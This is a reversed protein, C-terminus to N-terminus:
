YGTVPPDGASKKGVRCRQSKEDLIPRAHVGAHKMKDLIVKLRMKADRPDPAQDLISFHILHARLGDATTRDIEDDSPWDPDNVDVPEEAIPKILDDLASMRKVWDRDRSAKMARLGSRHQLM